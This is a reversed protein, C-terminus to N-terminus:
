DANTNKKSANRTASFIRFMKGYRKTWFRRACRNTAVSAIAESVILTWGSAVTIPTVAINAMRADAAHRSGTSRIVVVAANRRTRAGTWGPVPFSRGAGDRDPSKGVREALYFTMYGRGAGPEGIVMGSKVGIADMIKDPPQWEERPAKACAVGLSFVILLLILILIRGPQISM